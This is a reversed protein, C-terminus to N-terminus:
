WYCFFDLPVALVTTDCTLVSFRTSVRALQRLSWWTSFLPDSVMACIIALGDMAGHVKSGRLQRHAKSIM